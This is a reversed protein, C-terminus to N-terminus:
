VLINMFYCYKGTISKTNVLSRKKESFQRFRIVVVINIFCFILYGSVDKILFSTTLLSQMLPTQFAEKYGTEYIIESTNADFMYIGVEVVHYPLVYNFINFGLAILACIACVFYLSTQKENVKGSFIKLRGYSVYIGLYAQTNVFVYGLFLFIEIKYLNTMYSYSFPCLAGCRFLFVFFQTLLFLLDIVSNIFIFTLTQTNSEDKKLSGIISLSSTIIGLFSLVPLFYSNSYDYLRSSLVDLSYYIPLSDNM